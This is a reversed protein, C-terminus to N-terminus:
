MFHRRLAQRETELLPLAQKIVLVRQAYMMLSEQDNQMQADTQFFHLEQIERQLRLLRLMLIKDMLDVSPDGLGSRRREFQQWSSVADGDFRRRLRDKMGEEDEVLLREFIPLADTELTEHIYQLVDLEDQSVAMKFLQLLTRYDSHQFDEVSLECLPGRMLNANNNALQRFKRNVSYLLDPNLLLMRMCYAEIAVEKSRTTRVSPTPAPVRRVPAMAGDLVEDSELGADDPIAMAEYNLPPMGHEDPKSEVEARASSAGSGNRRARQDQRQEQRKAQKVQEQAWSLLDREGIRLRLALKQLNDKRYLDSESAMLMPLVQRAIAEREQLSANAPLQATEVDIVYDAVPVAEDILSQWREPNERILDDPDKADPIQLIRIDVSLRGAYDAQLTQRAVELSRMTANQGATDSDLALIIKKAYRLPPLRLQAETMATGMQAVVNTFGAQQAQIADMYGEVIVVTETDRIARKATDLGFLTHSKDFVESQPSNLYKPQDDANLARAGFGIVQGREDRIPIMLRHRFREYVTGRDHRIAVGADLAQDETYGLAKLENLLHQWGEPAYGIQFGRITEETFGRKRHAYELAAHGAETSLLQEHFYEAAIKLLGRLQDTRQNHQAQQPTQKKVEVGAQKGLEALAESFTWGHQKMAFSFIDGGEACAGFCRWSQTDPNVTFSPTKESHFPCCAKYTRGAKKLPAYQHIYAVIDLKSKIDDAVSVNPQAGNPHFDIIPDRHFAHL